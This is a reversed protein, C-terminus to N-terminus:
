KKEVQCKPCFYCNGGLWAIKEIKASCCPCPTGATKATMRTEYRGANGYFDTENDRGGFECAKSVVGTIAKHLDSLERSTLGKIKTKPHIRADFLIEQCMGNGIGSIGPESVLFYKISPNKKEGDVMLRLSMPKFGKDLPDAKTKALYPHSAIEDLTFLSAMGWGSISVTLLRGDDFGLLLQHKSPITSKDNHLRITEGGEGLALMMSGSLNVLIYTHKSKAGLIKCGAIRSEYDDKELRYFAFKHPSNGRICSTITRGQLEREIQRAITFAEPYEIM